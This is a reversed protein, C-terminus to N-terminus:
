EFSSRLLIFSLSLKIIQILIYRSTHDVIQADKEQPKEFIFNQVNEYCLVFYHISYM